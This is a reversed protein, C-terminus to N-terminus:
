LPCVVGALPDSAACVLPAQCGAQAGCMEGEVSCSDGVKHDCGNTTGGDITCPGGCTAFWHLNGAPAKGGCACVLAAALGLARWRTRSAEELELSRHDRMKM